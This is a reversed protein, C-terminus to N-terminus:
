RKNDIWVSRLRAGFAGSTSPKKSQSFVDSRMPLWLLPSRSPDAVQVDVSKRDIRCAANM